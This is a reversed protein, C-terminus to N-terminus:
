PAKRAPTGHGDKEHKEFESALGPYAAKIEKRFLSVLARSHPTQERLWYEEFGKMGPVDKAVQAVVCAYALLTVANQTSKAITAAM